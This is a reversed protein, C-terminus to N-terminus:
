EKAKNAFDRAQNSLHPFLESLDRKSLAGGFTDNFMKPKPFFISSTALMQAVKTFSMYRWLFSTNQYLGSSHSNYELNYNFRDEFDDRYKSEM